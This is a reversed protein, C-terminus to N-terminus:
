ICTIRFYLTNCVMSYAGVAYPCCPSEGWYECPNQPSLITEGWYRKFIIYSIRFYLTNCVMSYAGVAYPCCPSEGWYECPNQPSLITEGWYRKFIIYVHVHTYKSPWKRYMTIETCINLRSLM